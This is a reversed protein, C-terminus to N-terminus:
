ANINRILTKREDSNLFLSLYLIVATISYAFFSAFFNMSIINTLYKFFIGVLTLLIFYGLIPFFLQTYEKYSIHFLRFSIFPAYWNNTILQSLLTGLAIGFLGYKFSLLVSFFLNLIGAILATKYFIIRGTAMVAQAHMVHHVELILFILYVYTIMYGLFNGPGLWVNIVDSIFFALFIVPIALLGMVFKINKFLLAKISALNNDAYMQSYSTSSSNTILFTVTQIALIVRILAEYNPVETIGLTSSIVLIDSKFILAAGLATFAYKLSPKLLISFNMSFERRSFKLISPISFNRTIKRILFISIIRSLLHSLFWSIGLSIVGYGSLLFLYSLLLNLGIATSRVGRESIINGTGFLIANNSATLIQIYIGFIFFIYAIEHDQNQFDYYITFSIGFLLILSSILIYVIRTSIILKGVEDYKKINKTFRFAIERGLTPGLGLDLLNIFAGIALLLLWFGIDAPNLFSYFLKFQIFSSAITIFALLGGSLSNFFNKRSDEYNSIDM